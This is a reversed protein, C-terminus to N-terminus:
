KKVKWVRITGDELNRMTLKVGERKAMSAVYSYQNMTEVVFSDGVKLKHLLTVVAPRKRPRGNNKKPLEVGTEIKIEDYNYKAM